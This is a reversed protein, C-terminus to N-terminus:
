FQKIYKSLQKKLSKIARYMQTEVTKISIDLEESIERYKMGEYRSLKFIEKCKEPLNDIATLISNRLEETILGDLPHDDSTFFGSETEQMERVRKKEYEYEINLHKLHDLCQNRVSRYLYSKLSQEGLLESRKEWIRVFVDQVIERSTDLDCVFRQAFRCLSEYYENYLKEFAEIDGAEKREQEFSDRGALVESVILPQNELGEFVLDKYSKLLNAM